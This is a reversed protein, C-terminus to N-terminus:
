CGTRSSGPAPPSRAPPCEGEDRRERPVVVALWLVGTVALVAAYILMAPRLTLGSLELLLSASINGLGGALSLLLLETSFVRGRYADATREQLLVTSLAWNAGFPMHAVAVFVFTLFSWPLSGVFLYAVGSAAMGLGFLAPWRLRDSVWRRAGVPGLATGLGRAGYLLGIGVAPAHPMVEGGLIALMYVLGAGSVAWASKTVAIRGVRAHRRMYSWGAAIDHFADRLRRGKATETSQPIATRSILFASVCFTLSDIVFVQRMGLWDTALGGLATGVAILTAGTATSLTNATLLEQESTINPISARRAPTFVAAIVVQLVFLGYLVPLERAEDVLLFGLVLLARALDGAIMLRRRNFRDAIVGAFPSALAWSTTRLFFVIGLALPSGTLQRVLTYLAIINFWGGLDSVVSALWLRRYNANTGLLELYGKSTM